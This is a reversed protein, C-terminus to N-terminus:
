SKPCWPPGAGAWKSWVGESGDECRGAEADHPLKGGAAAREGGKEVAGAGHATERVRPTCTHVPLRGVSRYEGIDSM